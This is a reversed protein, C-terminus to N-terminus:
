MVRGEPLLEGKRDDGNTGNERGDDRDRDRDRDDKSDRDSINKDTWSVLFLCFFYQGIRRAEHVTVIATEVIMTGTEVIKRAHLTIVVVDLLHLVVVHPDVVNVIVIVVSVESAEIVVAAVQLM